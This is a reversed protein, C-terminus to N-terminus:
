RAKVQKAMDMFPSLSPGPRRRRPMTPGSMYEAAFSTVAPPKPMPAMPPKPASQAAAPKAQPAPAAKAAAPKAEAPKAEAKAPQAEAPKAEAPESTSNGDSENLELFFESKKGLGVLGGITKFISGFLGFITGFISKILGM